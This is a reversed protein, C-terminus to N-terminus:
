RAAHAFLKLKEKLKEERNPFNESHAEGINTLIGITPQIIKELKEMEQNQFAQRLSPLSMIRVEDAM